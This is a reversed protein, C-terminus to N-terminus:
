NTKFIKLGNPTLRKSKPKLVALLLRTSFIKKKIFLAGARAYGPDIGLIIM